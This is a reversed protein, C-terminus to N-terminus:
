QTKATDTTSYYSAFIGYGNEINTYMHVPNAMGDWIDSYQNEVHRVLKKKYNYYNLSISKLEVLVFPDACGICSVGGFYISLRKKKGNFLEDSFVFTNPYYYLDGEQQIVPDKSTIYPITYEIEDNEIYALTVKAEYYNNIYSSDSFTFRIEDLETGDEDTAANRYLQLNEIKTKFSPVNDTAQVDDYGDASVSISYSKEPLPHFSVTKYIGNGYPRLYEVLSDGQFLSVKANDITVINWEDTSLSSSVHIKLLSDPTFFSNVVLKKPQDDKKFTVEKECSFLTFALSLVLFYTYKEHEPM